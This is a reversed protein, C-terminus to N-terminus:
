SFVAEYSIGDTTRGVPVIFIDLEGLTQHQFRYIQQPLVTQSRALFLLSFPKRAPRGGEPQWGSAPVERATELVADVTVGEALLLRFPQGVLPAFSDLTLQELM